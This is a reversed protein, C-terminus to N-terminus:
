SARRLKPKQRRPVLVPLRSTYRAVRAVAYPLSQFRSCRLVGSIFQLEDRIDMLIAIGAREWTPATGQEDLPTWRLNRGRQDAM